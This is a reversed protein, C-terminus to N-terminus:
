RSAWAIHLKSFAAPQAPVRSRGEKVPARALRGLSRWSEQEACRSSSQAEECLSLSNM